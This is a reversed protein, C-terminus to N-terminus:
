FCMQLNDWFGFTINNITDYLFVDLHTNPLDSESEIKVWGNNNKIDQIDKPFFYGNFYIINPYDGNKWSKMEEPNFFISDLNGNEDLFSDFKLYLDGWAEKIKEEKTM